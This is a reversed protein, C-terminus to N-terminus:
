NKLALSLHNEFKNLYENVSYLDKFILYKDEDIKKGQYFCSAKEHYNPLLQRDDSIFSLDNLSDKALFIYSYYRMNDLFCKVGMSYVELYEMLRLLINYDFYLNPFDLPEKLINVVFKSIEFNAMEITLSFHNFGDCEFFLNCLKPDKANLDMVRIMNCLSFLQEKNEPLVQFVIRIPSCSILSLNRKLCLYQLDQMYTQLLYDFFTQKLIM